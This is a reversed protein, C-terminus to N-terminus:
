RGELTTNGNYRFLGLGSITKRMYAFRSAQTKNEELLLVKSQELELRM